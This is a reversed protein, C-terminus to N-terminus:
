NLDPDFPSGYRPITPRQIAASNASMVPVVLLCGVILAGVILACKIYDVGAKEWCLYINTAEISLVLALTTNFQLDMM